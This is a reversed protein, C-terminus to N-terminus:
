LTLLMVKKVEKLKEYREYYDLGQQILKIDANQLSKLEALEQETANNRQGPNPDGFVIKNIMRAENAYAFPPSNPYANFLAENVEKFSDGADNRLKILNDYVWRIVTVKFKPSLWMALDIFIYPHVWTGGNKGRKSIVFGNDLERQNANNVNYDQALAGLFDKTSKNDIYDQIRKQEGSSRNYLNILDTANFFSNKSDQRVTVGNLDRSMIVSTKM